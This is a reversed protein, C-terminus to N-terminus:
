GGGGGAGAGGNADIEAAGTVEEVEGAAGGVVEEVEGDDEVVDEVEETDGVVEEGEGAGGSVEEFEGDDGSVVEFEQSLDRVLLCDSKKVMTSEGQEGSGGGRARCDSLRIRLPTPRGPRVEEVSRSSCGQQLALPMGQENDLKSQREMNSNIPQSPVKVGIARRAINIYIYFIYLEM